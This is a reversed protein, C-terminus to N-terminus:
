WGCLHLLGSIPFGVFIVICAAAITRDRPLLAAVLSACAGVALYVRVALGHFDGLWLAAVFATLAFAAAARRGYAVAITKHGAARDVEYDAAAALAHIGAVCLALLYYRAPMTRPDAGLSYGMALPLLFYGLGNALSDFPPREKLRLPLVSYAWATVLLGATAAVNWIRGTLIAGVLVIPMAVIVARWVFQREQEGVVVGWIRTRRQCRRDSEWDYIDNLGCGILNMPFTLLVIQLLASANFNAHSAHMGLGFVLPLIPWVIPRSVRVLYILRDM